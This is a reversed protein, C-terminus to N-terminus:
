LMAHHFICWISPKSPLGLWTGMGARRPGLQASLDLERVKVTKLSSAGESDEIIVCRGPIPSPQHVFPLTTPAWYVHIRKGSWVEPRNPQGPPTAPQPLFSGWHEGLRGTAHGAGGQAATEEWASAWPCLLPQTAQWDCWVATTNNQRIQLCSGTQGPTTSNKEDAAPPFSVARSPDGWNELKRCLSLRAKEVLPETVMTMPQTVKLLAM